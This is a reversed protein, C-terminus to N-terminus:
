NHSIIALMIESGSDSSDTWRNSAFNFEICQLDTKVFVEIKEQKFRYPIYCVTYCVYAIIEGQSALVDARM